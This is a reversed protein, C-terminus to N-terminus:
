RGGHGEIFVGLSKGKVNLIQLPSCPMIRQATRKVMM